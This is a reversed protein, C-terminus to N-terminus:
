AHSRHDSQRGSQPQLRHRGTIIPREDPIGIM